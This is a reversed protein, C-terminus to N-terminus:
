NIFDHEAFSSIRSDKTKGDDSPFQIDQNHSLEAALLSIENGQLPTPFSLILFFLFPIIANLYSDKVFSRILIM